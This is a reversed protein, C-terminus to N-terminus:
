QNIRLQNRLLFLYRPNWWEKMAYFNYRNLVNNVEWHVSEGLELADLTSGSMLSWVFVRRFENLIVSFSIIAIILDSSAFFDWLYSLIPGFIAFISHLIM